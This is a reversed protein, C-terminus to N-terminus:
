ELYSKLTAFQKLVEVGDTGFSEDEVLRNLDGVAAKSYSCILDLASAAALGEDDHARDVLVLALNRVIYLCAMAEIIIKADREIMSKIAMVAQCRVRVDVDVLFNNLVRLARTRAETPINTGFVLVLLQTNPLLALLFAKRAPPFESASRIASAANSQTSGRIAFGKQLTTIAALSALLDVSYECIEKKGRESVALAMLAAAANREVDVWKRGGLAAAVSTGIEKVAGHKICDANGGSDHSLNRIVLLCERLIPEQYYLAGKKSRLVAVRQLLTVLPLVVANALSRALGVSDNTVNAFM